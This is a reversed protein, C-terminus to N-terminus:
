IVEIIIHNSEVPASNYQTVAWVEVSDGATTTSGEVNWVFDLTDVQTMEGAVVEAGGNIAYHLFVESTPAINAQATITTDTGDPIPSSPISGLALTLQSVTGPSGGGDADFLAQWAGCELALSYLREALASGQNFTVDSQDVSTVPSRWLTMPGSAFIRDSVSPETLIVVPTGLYTELTGDLNRILLHAEAAYTAILPTMFLLGQAPVQVALATELAGIVSSLSTATAAIPAAEALLMAAIAGDVVRYEGASLVRGATAAFESAGSNLWCRIGQYAGFVETAVHDDATTFSKDPDTSGIQIYCDQPTPNPFACPDSAFVFGVFHEAPVDIVPIVDLSTNPRKQRPPAEVWTLPTAM